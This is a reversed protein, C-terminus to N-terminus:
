NYKGALVASRILDKDYSVQLFSMAGSRRSCFIKPTQGYESDKSDVEAGNDLLLKVIAEHGNESAWSLPTRSYESDKSDVKTGNDPCLRVIANHGFYSAVMLDTFNTIRM